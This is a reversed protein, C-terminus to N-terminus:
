TGDAYDEFRYHPFKENWENMNVVEFNDILNKKIGRLNEQLRFPLKSKIKGALYKRLVSDAKPCEIVYYYEKIKNECGTKNNIYILSDYYKRAIKVYHKDEKINNEFAQPNVANPINSNKYEMFVISSEEIIILDVDSLINTKNYEEHLEIIEIAKNCDIKFLKNEEVFVKDSM